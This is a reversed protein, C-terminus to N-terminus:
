QSKNIAFAQVLGKAQEESIIGQEMQKRIFLFHFIAEMDRIGTKRNTIKMFVNNDNQSHRRSFNKWTKRTKIIERRCGEDSWTPHEEVLKLYFARIEKVLNKYEEATEADTSNQPVNEYKYVLHGDDALQKLHEDTLKQQEGVTRNKLLKKKRRQNRKM